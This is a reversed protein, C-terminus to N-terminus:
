PYAAGLRTQKNNDLTVGLYVTSNVVPIQYGSITLPVELTNDRKNTFLIATSKIASLKLGKTNCWRNINNLHQQAVETITSKCIGRILIVLDDAFAQIFSSHIGYLIDLKSDYIVLHYGDLTRALLASFQSGRAPRTVDRCVEEEKENDKEEKKENEEVRDKEGDEDEKGDKEEEEKEEDEKEEKKEDVEGELEGYIEGNYTLPRHANDRGDRATVCKQGLLFELRADGTSLVWQGM